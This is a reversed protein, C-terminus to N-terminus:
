RGGVDKCDVGVCDYCGGGHRRKML